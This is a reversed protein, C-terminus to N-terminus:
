GRRGDSCQWTNAKDDVTVGMEYLLQDRLEDATKWDREKKAKKRANCLAEIPNPNPHASTLNPNPNPSPNPSPSPSPSPNPSPNPNPNPNALTLALNLTRRQM